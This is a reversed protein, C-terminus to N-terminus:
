PEDAIPPDAIRQLYLNRLFQVEAPDKATAACDELVSLTFAYAAREAHRPDRDYLFFSIAYWNHFSEHAVVLMLHLEQGDASFGTKAVHAEAIKVLPPASWSTDGPIWMYEITYHSVLDHTLPSCKKLRALANEVYPSLRPDVIPLSRPTPTGTRSPTQVPSPTSSVGQWPTEVPAQASVPLALAFLALTLIIALRWRQM